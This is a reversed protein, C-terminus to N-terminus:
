IGTTVGKNWYHFRRMVYLDRVLYEEFNIIAKRSGRCLVWIAGTDPM